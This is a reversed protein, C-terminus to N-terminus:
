ADEDPDIVREPDEHSPYRQADEEQRRNLSADEEEPTPQPQDTSMSGIRHSLAREESITVRRLVLPRSKTPVCAEHPLNRLHLHPLAL